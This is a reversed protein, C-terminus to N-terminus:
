TAKFTNRGVELGVYGIEVLVDEPGVQPEHVDIMEIRGPHPMSIALM